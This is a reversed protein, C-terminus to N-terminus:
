RFSPPRMLHALVRLASALAVDLRSNVQSSSVGAMKGLAIQGQFPYKQESVMLTGKYVDRLAVGGSNVQDEAGVSPLAAALVLLLLGVGRM